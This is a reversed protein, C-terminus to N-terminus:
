IEALYRKTLIKAAEVGPQDFPNIELLAGAYLTTWEWYYFLSGLSFADLRDMEMCALTLKNHIMADRTARYEADFLDRMSKGELAQFAPLDRALSKSSLPLPNVCENVRILIFNKDQPGEMYLQVQSHQDTTGIAPYPTLGKGNKGLSEAWLQCFWRSFAQLRSSYPMLVTINKADKTLAYAMKFAPNQDLPIDEWQGVLSKAGELLAEADLGAFLAPFLGVPTLVSFRGGVASPVNLCTLGHQNAFARFDGTQPDTCLVVHKKWADGPLKARLHDILVLLQSITEPTKGSKSVAYILTEEPKWLPLHGHFFDPDNNDMVFLNLDSDPAALAEFITETGLSSGGTGLVVFNRIGSRHKEVAKKMMAYDPAEPSSKDLLRRFGAFDSAIWNHYQLTATDIDKTSPKANWLSLTNETFKLSNRVM